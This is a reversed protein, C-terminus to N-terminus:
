KGKEIAKVKVLTYDQRHGHTRRVGGRRVFKYSLVKPHRGHELVELTVRYPLYPAGVDVEQGDTVMMVEPVILEGGPEAKLRDVKLVEDPEVRYQRGGIKVLAYM